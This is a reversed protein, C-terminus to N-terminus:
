PVDDQGFIRKELDLVYDLASDVLEPYSSMNVIMPRFSRINDYKIEISSIYAVFNLGDWDETMLVRENSTVEVIIEGHRAMDRYQVQRCSMAMRDQWLKRPKNDFCKMGERTFHKARLSGNIRMVAKFLEVQKENVSAGM